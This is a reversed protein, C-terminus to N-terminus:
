EVRDLELGATRADAALAHLMGAEFVFEGNPARSRLFHDFLWISDFGLEDATSTASVARAWAGSSTVDVFPEAWGQPIPFGIRM